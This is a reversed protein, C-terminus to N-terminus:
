FIDLCSLTVLISSYSSGPEGRGRPVGLDCINVSFSDTLAVQLSASFIKWVLSSGCHSPYFLSMCPKTLVCLGLYTLWLFSWFWLQLPGGMPDFSWMLSGTARCWSPLDWSHTGKSVMLAQMHSLWLVTLFQSETRLPCVCFRIHKLELHLPLLKFHVEDSGSASRPSSGLSAPLLQSEGQSCLCQCSGTKHVWEVLLVSTSVLVM